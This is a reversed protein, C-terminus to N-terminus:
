GAVRIEAEFKGRDRYELRVRKDVNILNFNLENSMEHLVEKIMNFVEFTNDYIKQKLVAKESLLGTILQKPEQQPNDM